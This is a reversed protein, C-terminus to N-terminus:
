TDLDCFKDLDFLKDLDFIKDPTVDLTLMMLQMFVLLKKKNVHQNGDM